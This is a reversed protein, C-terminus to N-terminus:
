SGYIEGVNAGSGEVKGYNANDTLAGKGKTGVIGGVPTTGKIDGYNTCGEIVINADKSTGSMGGVYGSGTSTVNGFNVCNKILAGKGAGTIGGIQYSSATVNGYNACNIVQSSEGMSAVIGSVAACGQVSVYSTVNEIKGAGAINGALAAVYKNANVNETGATISGYLSLNMVYGDYLRGFLPESSNINKIVCNNGDLNGYFLKNNYYSGGISLPNGNLDISKTMKFYMGNFNATNAAAENVVKAIYALDAGSQILFPDEATGSGALSTSVSTGDWVVIESYYINFTHSVGANQLGFKV